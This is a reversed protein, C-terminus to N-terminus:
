QAPATPEAPAPTPAPEKRNVVSDLVYQYEFYVTFKGYKWRTIPPKGVAPAKESPTGYKAEVQKMTMGRTPCDSCTDAGISVTKLVTGSETEQTTTDAAFAPAAFLAAALLVTRVYTM